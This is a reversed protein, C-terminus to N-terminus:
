RGSIATKYTWLTPISAAPTGLAGLLLARERLSLSVDEDDGIFAVRAASLTGSCRQVTPEM